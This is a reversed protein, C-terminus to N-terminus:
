NAPANMTKNVEISAEWLIDPTGLATKTFNLTSKNKFPILFYTKKIEDDGTFHDGLQIVRTLKIASMLFGETV